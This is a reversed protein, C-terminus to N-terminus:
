HAALTVAPVAGRGFALAVAELVLPRMADAKSCALVHVRRCEFVDLHKVVPFPQVRRQAVLRRRLEHM